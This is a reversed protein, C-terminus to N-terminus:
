FHGEMDRVFLNFWLILLVMFVVTVYSQYVDHFDIIFIHDPGLLLKRVMVSFRLELMRGLKVIAVMNVNGVLIWVIADVLVNYGPIVVKVNELKFVMKLFLYRVLGMLEVSLLEVLAEWNRASFTLELMVMGSTIVVFLSM